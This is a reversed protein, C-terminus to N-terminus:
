HVQEPEDDLAADFRAARSQSDAVIGNVHVQVPPADKWMGIDKGILELAKNAVSGQFTYEGTGEGEDDRGDIELQQEPEYYQTM